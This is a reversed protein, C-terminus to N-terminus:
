VYNPIIIEVASMIEEGTEDNDFYNYEEKANQQEQQHNQEGNFNNSSSNQESNNFNITANNLGSNNLQIRLEQINMSLTNIASNNSSINVHLNKGRQVVTLDVDGLKQPNLQVKVRTFPSKYDDIVTKVDSSLYKMMQKAENFKVELSEIKQTNTVIENKTIHTTDKKEERADKKSNLLAELKKTADAIPVAIQQTQQVTNSIDIKQSKINDKKDIRKEKLVEIKSPSSKKEKTIELSNGDKKVFTKLLQELPETKEIKEQAQTIKTSIKITNAPLKLIQQKLEQNVEKVEELSIKRVDIGFKKALVDLNKLTKPLEKMDIKKYEESKVIKQKLYIKADAILLKVEKNTLTEATKPEILIDNNFLKLLGEIPNKNEIIQQPVVVEKEEKIEVSKLLTELKEIPQKVKIEKPEQQIEQVKEKKEIKKVIEIEQPKKIGVNKLLTELKEIPQKVKIEKLEQKIEQLKNFKNPIKIFKKEKLDVTKLLKQLRETQKISIEEKPSSVKLFKNEKTDINKLLEAFSSKSVKDKTPLTDKSSQIKKQVVELLTM